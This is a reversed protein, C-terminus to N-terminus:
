LFRVSPVPFCVVRFSLPDSIARRILWSSSAVDSLSRRLLFRRSTLSLLCSTVTSSKGSPSRRRYPCFVALVGFHIGIVAVSFPSLQVVPSSLSHRCHLRCCGQCSFSAAAAFSKVPRLLSCVQFPDVALHLSSSALGPLTPLPLSLAYTAFPGLFLRVVLLLLKKREDLM